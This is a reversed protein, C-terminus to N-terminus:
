DDSCSYIRHFGIRKCIECMTEIQPNAVPKTKGAAKACECCLAILNMNNESKSEQAVLAM